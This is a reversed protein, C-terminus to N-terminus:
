FIELVCLDPEFYIVYNDIAVFPSYKSRYQKLAESLFEETVELFEAVEHSSRCGHKFASIIGQLGIMKNYAWFRARQEQKRDMLTTQETIDGCTTYHHGLEEALVCNKEANTVLKNSLAVTNNCYLGKIRDSKFHYHIVEIGDECAENELCEFSNM